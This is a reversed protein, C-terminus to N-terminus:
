LFALTESEAVLASRSVPRLSSEILRYKVKGSELPRLIESESNYEFVPAIILEIMAYAITSIVIAIVVTYVSAVIM